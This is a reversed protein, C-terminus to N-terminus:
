SIRIYVLRFVLVMNDECLCTQVGISYWTVIDKHIKIMRQRGRLASGGRGFIIVNVTYCLLSNYNLSVVSV